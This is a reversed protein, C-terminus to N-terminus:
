RFSPATISAPLKIVRWIPCCAGVIEFDSDQKEQQRYGPSLHECPQTIVLRQLRHGVGQEPQEVDKPKLKM